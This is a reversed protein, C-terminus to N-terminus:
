SNCCMSFLIMGEGERGKKKKKKQQILQNFPYFSKLNIFKVNRLKSSLSYDMKSM